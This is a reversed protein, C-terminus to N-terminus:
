ARKYSQKALDIYYENELIAGTVHLLLANKNMLEALKVGLEDVARARKHSKEKLSLVVRLVNNVQGNLNDTELKLQNKQKAYDTRAGDFEGLSFVAESTEREMILAKDFYRQNEKIRGTAIAGPELLKNVMRMTKQMHDSVDKKNFDVLSDLFKQAILRYTSQAKTVGEDARLEKIRKDFRTSPIAFDGEYGYMPAVFIDNHLILNVGLATLYGCWFGFGTRQYQYESSMELEIGYVEVKKYRKGDQWLKAVLALAYDPSSSFYRFQGAGIRLNDTMDLVEKLPYAKAKPVDKYQEQMYITPTDGSKLWRVHDPDSRNAPNRWIAEHHLQFVADARPYILKGDKKQNGAENFVWIECDTRSWDFKSASRPHSGMIVLNDM